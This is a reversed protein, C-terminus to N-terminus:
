IIFKEGLNAGIATTKNDLVYAIHFAKNRNTPSLKLKIVAFEGIIKASESKRKAFFMWFDVGDQKFTAVQRGVCGGDLFCCPKGDKVEDSKGAPYFAGNYLAGICTPKLDSIALKDLLEVILGM